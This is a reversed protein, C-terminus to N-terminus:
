PFPGKKTTNGQSSSKALITIKTTKSFHKNKKHLGRKLKSRKSRIDKRRKTQFHPIMQLEKKLYFSAPFNSSQVKFRPTKPTLSKIMKTEKGKEEKKNERQLRNNENQCIMGLIDTAAEHNEVLVLCYM